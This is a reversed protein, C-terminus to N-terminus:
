RRRALLILGAAGMLVLSAPEPLSVSHVDIQDISTGGPVDIQIQEWDPNPEIEWDEVIVGTGTFGDDRNGPLQLTQEVGFVDLVVPAALGSWYIQIRLLKLPEDDVWNIVNVGMGGSDNVPLISSDGDWTWEGSLDIHTSFGGHLTENGTGPTSAESDPPLGTGFNPATNFDWHAEYSLPDGAYPPAYLNDARSSAVCVLMLVSVPVIKQINM